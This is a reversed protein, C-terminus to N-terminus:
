QQVSAPANSNETAVKVLEDIAQADPLFGENARRLTITPFFERIFRLANESLKIQM